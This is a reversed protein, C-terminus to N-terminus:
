DIACAGGSASHPRKPARAPASQPPPPSGPSTLSVRTAQNPQAANSRTKIKDLIHVRVGNLKMTVVKEGLDVLWAWACGDEEGSSGWQEYILRGHICYCCGASVFDGLAFIRGAHSCNLM